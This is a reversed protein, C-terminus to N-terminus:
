PPRPLRWAPAAVVGSEPVRQSCWRPRCRHARRVGGTRHGPQRPARPHASPGGHWSTGPRSAPGLVRVMPASMCPWRRRCTPRALASRPPPAPPSCPSSSHSCAARCPAALRVRHRSADPVRSGSTERLTRPLTNLINGKRAWGPARPWPFALNGLGETNHADCSVVLTVGRQVAQGRRPRSTWGRPRATSRWWLRARPKDLVEEMRLPTPSGARSSGGRPTGLIHLHPNEFQLVRRTM